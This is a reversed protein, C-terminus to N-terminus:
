RVVIQVHRQEFFDLLCDVTYTVKDGQRKSAGLRLRKVSDTGM